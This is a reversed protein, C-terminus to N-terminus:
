TDEKFCKRYTVYIETSTIALSFDDDSNKVTEQLSKDLLGMINKFRIIADKLDKDDCDSQIANYSKLKQMARLFVTRDGAKYKKLMEDFPEEFGHDKAKSAKSVIRVSLGEVEPKLAQFIRFVGAEFAESQQGRIQGIQLLITYVIFLITIGGLGGGIYDGLEGRAWKYDFADFPWLPAYFISYGYIIWVLVLISALKFLFNRIKGSKDKM